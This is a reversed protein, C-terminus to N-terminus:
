NENNAVCPATTGGIVHHIVGDDDIWSTTSYRHPVMTHLGETVWRTTIGGDCPSDVLQEDVHVKELPSGERRGAIVLLFAATTGISGLLAFFLEVDTFTSIARIRGVMIPVVSLGINLAVTSIGYATGLQDHDVVLSISPWLASAFASYFIGLCFLPAVPSYTTLGLTVHSISIVFGSLLLTHGRHGIRDMMHGLLPSMFASLSDPLSQVAGATQPDGPYWKTQLFDSAIHMFPQVAGYLTLLIINLLWFSLSFNALHSWNIHDDQSFVSCADSDFLLDNPMGTQNMIPKQVSVADPQNLGAKARSEPRDQCVELSGGGMGFAVRGVIMLWFSRIYVGYAFIAQGLCLLTTLTILMTNTGLRDIGIGALLPCIVNPMSAATFLMNLQYQWLDYPTGM